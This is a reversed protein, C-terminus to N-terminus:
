GHARRTYAFLHVQGKLTRKDEPPRWAKAAEEGLKLMRLADDGVEGRGALSLALSWFAAAVALPCATARDAHLLFRAAAAAAASAAASAEAGADVALSALLEAQAEAAEETAGLSPCSFSPYTGAADERARRRLQALAQFVLWTPQPRWAIGWLGVGFNERLNWSREHGDAYVLQWASLFFRGLPCGAGDGTDFVEGESSLVSAVTQDSPSPEGPSALPGDVLAERAHHWFPSDCTEEGDASGVAWLCAAALLGALSTAPGRARM